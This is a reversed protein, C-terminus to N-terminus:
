RVSSVASIAALTDDPRPVVVHRAQDTVQRVLDTALALRRSSATRMARPAERSTRRRWSM